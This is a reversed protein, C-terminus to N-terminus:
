RESELSWAGSGKLTLKMNGNTDTRFVKKGQDSGASNKEYLEVAKDDPLGFTNPGVSILTMAPKIARIHATYYNREDGPDDFFSLSGHHAALLINAQLKGPSDSYFPLVKEKWPKFSTDGALLASSGKYEIKLVISQDNADSMDPSAANMYRVVAEGVTNYTQGKITGCPIQRRLDMYARYEPSDTTTGPVDPDEIKGIPFIAHITKIGRVHDADRHSCIFTDINRREAMAKDLYAVVRGENDNTINCDYLYTRGNPFRILTMNGCGVDIFHIEM